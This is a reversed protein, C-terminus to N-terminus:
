ARNQFGTESIVECGFWGPPSFASTEDVIDFEVEVIIPPGLRGQLAHLEFMPRNEPLGTFRNKEHRRNMM